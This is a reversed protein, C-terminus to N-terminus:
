KSFWWKHKVRKQWWWVHDVIKLEEVLNKRQDGYRVMKLCWEGVLKVLWKKDKKRLRPEQEPLSHPQTAVLIHMQKRWGCGATVALLQTACRHTSTVSPNHHQHADCCTITSSLLYLLVVLFTRKYDHTIPERMRNERLTIRLCHSYKCPHIGFHWSIQHAALFVPHNMRVTPLWPHGITKLTNNM